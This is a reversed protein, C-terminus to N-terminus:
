RNMAQDKRVWEVMKKLGDALSVKPAWGLDGKARTIDAYVGFQDAPTSGEYKVPYDPKVGCAKLEAEVLERVHVKKGGALNYTKGYSAKAALAGVWAEVVDDIYIFDRFRDKSGKVWIPENKLIYALYISVMGQKMNTMDQGPGYVSFMRFITTDMGKRSFHKVYHEAALKTIGYFSLPECPTTEKIPLASPPLDGYVSMSSAYLFRKMGRKEAWRLLNLTGLANTLIDLGPKENSIEGSSQAALHFIADYKEEPILEIQKEDGIDLKKFVAGKPINREYGTVLNDIIVVSHGDRLLRRAISSGIFGAGGTVLVRGM